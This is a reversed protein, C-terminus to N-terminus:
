IGELTCLPPLVEGDSRVSRMMRRSTDQPQRMWSDVLGPLLVLDLLVFVWSSMEM